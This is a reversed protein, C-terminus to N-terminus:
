HPYSKAFSIICVHANHVINLMIQFKISWSFHLPYFGHFRPCRLRSVGICVKGLDSVKAPTLLISTFPILCPLPWYGREFWVTGFGCFRDPYRGFHTRSVEFTPLRLFISIWQTGDASRWNQKRELRQCAGICRYKTLGTYQNRM